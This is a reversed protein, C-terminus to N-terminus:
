QVILKQTTTKDSITLTVMYFGAAPFTSAPVVHQVVTNPAYSEDARYITKGSLDRIAYSVKGDRGTTFAVTCDGKTPNPYIKVADPHNSVESVETTYPTVSIRDLYLDNGGATPFYRFRFFVQKTRYVTPISFMQPAWQAATTPVFETNQFGNNALTTGALSGIRVWSRGGNTSISVQMSDSASNNRMSGATFFNVNMEGSTNGSLDFAPSFIDDKDGGPDGSNKDTRYDFSRYRVCANDGYGATTFPEWKFTNNYYNFIPWKDYANAGSFDQEYGAPQIANSDAVYVQKSVSNSGANSTAVLTVTAWGPQTFKTTVTSMSTSGNTTAGNSFTWNVSSITDNWSQNRFDFSFDSNMPLFYARELTPINSNNLGKEISFDAVPPLDPMPELAGTAALNAASYLNNRGAITSTLAAKMRQVQGITFMKQCYTYDMINQANTTDPYDITYTGTADTYTKQYGIACDTDYLAANTCGPVHGKTPPTDDVDDDGCAVAPQNTSGWTHSLNLVHGIEHPIAKDYNLYSSLGIVGDYYPFYQASSPYYAYAAAGAHAGSFTNIFWVNIYSENPWGGIKAQDGGNTTLYSNEHTIGKTPNGNPDKTALHLRMKPNGVYQKFPAIVDATDANQALYTQAWYRVASFISDDKLYETGYDHVVHIVIPIDYSNTDAGTGTTRALKNFNLKQTQLKIAENLQQEYVAIEPHQSKLQQYVADTACTNQATSVKAMGLLACLPLIIKKM